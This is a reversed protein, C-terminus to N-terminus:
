KLRRPDVPPPPYDGCIPAVEGLGYRARVDALDTNGGLRVCAIAFGDSKELKTMDWLRATRDSSAVNTLARPIDSFHWSCVDLVEGGQGNGDDV